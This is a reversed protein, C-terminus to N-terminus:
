KIVYSEYWVQVTAKVPGPKAAPKRSNGDFDGSISKPIKLADMEMSIKTFSPLAYSRAKANDYSLEITVTGAKKTTSIVKRAVMATTDVWITAVVIDSSEDSPLVKIKRMSNEVGMDIATFDKSLLKLAGLDVGDKPLMAFGPADITTKDPATHKLTATMDPVRMFPVDVKIKLQATYSKARTMKARLEKLLADATRAYTFSASLATLVILLTVRMM